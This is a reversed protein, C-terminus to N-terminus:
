DERGRAAITAHRSLERQEQPDFLWCQPGCHPDALLALRREQKSLRRVGRGLAESRANSWSTGSPAEERPSVIWPLYDRGFSTLGQKHMMRISRNESVSAKMGRGKDSNARHTM